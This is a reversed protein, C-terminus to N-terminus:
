LQSARYMPPLGVKSFGTNAFESAFYGPPEKQAPRYGPESLGAGRDVVEVVFRV